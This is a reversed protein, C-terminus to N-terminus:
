QLHGHMQYLGICICTCDFALQAIFEVHCPPRGQCSDRQAQLNQSLWSGSCHPSAPGLSPCTSILALTIRMVMMKMSMMTKMLMITLMFTLMTMMNRSIFIKRAHCTPSRRTTHRCHIRLEVTDPAIISCHTKTPSILFIIIGGYRNPTYIVFAKYGKQFDLVGDAFYILM